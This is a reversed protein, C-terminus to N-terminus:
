SKLIDRIHMGRYEDLKEQNLVGKDWLDDSMKDLKKALYDTLLDQVETLTEKSDDYSFLKLLHLQVPNFVHRTAYAGMPESVMNSTQGEM